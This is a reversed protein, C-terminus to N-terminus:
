ASGAALRKKILAGIEDAKEKKVFRSLHSTAFIAVGRGDLDGELLEGKIIKGKKLHLRDGLMNQFYRIPPSVHLYIIKPQIHRLLYEIIETTRDTGSLDRAEKTPRCWFNTELCLNPAASKVIREIKERAPGLKGRKSLYSQHFKGKNFGTENSWFRWFSEDLSTAPNIGIIFIQCELPSGDCVFPRLCAPHEAMLDTLEQRFKALGEIM